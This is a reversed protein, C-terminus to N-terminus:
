KRSYDIRFLYSGPVSKCAVIEPAYTTAGAAYVAARVIQTWGIGGRLTDAYVRAYRVNGNEDLAVKIRVSGTTLAAAAIPPYKAQVVHITHADADPTACGTSSPVPSAATEVAVFERFPLLAARRDAPDLLDGRRLASVASSVADSFASFRDADALEGLTWESSVLYLTRSTAYIEDLNPCTAAIATRAALARPSTSAAVAGDFVRKQEGAPVAALAAIFRLIEPSELDYAFATALDNPLDPVASACSDPTPSAAIPTPAAFLKAASGSAFLLGAFLAIHGSRM